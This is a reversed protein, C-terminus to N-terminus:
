QFVVLGGTNVVVFKGTLVFASLGVMFNLKKGVPCM